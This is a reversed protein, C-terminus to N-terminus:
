AVTEGAERVSVAASPRAILTQQHETCWWRTGDTPPTPTPALFGADCVTGDSHEWDAIDDAFPVRTASTDTM